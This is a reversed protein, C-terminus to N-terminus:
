TDNTMTSYFQVRVGKDAVNKSCMNLGHVCQRADLYQVPYLQEYIKKYCELFIENESLWRSVLTPVNYQNLPLMIFLCIVNLRKM